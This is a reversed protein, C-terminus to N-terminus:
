EVVQSNAVPFCQRSLKVDFGNVIRSIFAEQASLVSTYAKEENEL